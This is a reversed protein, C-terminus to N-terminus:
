NRVPEPIVVTKINNPGQVACAMHAASFLFVWAAANLPVAESMMEFKVNVKREKRDKNCHCSHL